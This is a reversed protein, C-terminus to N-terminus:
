RSTPPKWDWATGKHVAVTKGGRKGGEAAVRGGKRKRKREAYVASGYPAKVRGKSRWIRPAVNTAALQVIGDEEVKFTSRIAERREERVNRGLYDYPEYRKQGTAPDRRQVPHKWDWVIFWEESPEVGEAVQDKQWQCVAWYKGLLSHKPHAAIYSCPM